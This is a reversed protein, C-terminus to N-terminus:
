WQEQLWQDFRGTPRGWGPIEDVERFNRCTSQDRFEAPSWRSATLNQGHRIDIYPIESRWTDALGERVGPEYGHRHDYGHAEVDAVFAQYYSLLLSRDACLGSVSQMDYTVARGTVADVRVCNANYYFRDLRPPIFCFHEPPMMDDHEVLYVIDADTEQLGRLWQQLMTLRSRTLPLVVNRGFAIPELTVSIIPIGESARFLRNRCAALIQPPAHSDSITVIGRQPVSVSLNAKHEGCLAAGLGADVCSTSVHSASDQCNGVQVALLNRSQEGLDVDVV